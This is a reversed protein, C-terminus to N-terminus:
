DSMLFDRVSQGKPPSKQGNRTNNNGGNSPTASRGPAVPGRKQPERIEINESNARKGVSKLAEARVKNIITPLLQAAKSEYKSQIFDRDAKAYGSRHAKQWAQRMVAQFRTDQSLIQQVQRKAKNVAAERVFESMTENPDLRKALTADIKRDLKNIIEGRTAEFKEALFEQREKNVSEDKPAEDKALKSPPTYQSSGTAYQHLIVAAHKLAENGSARAEEVMGVVLHKAINRTIHIQAGEDVAALDTMLNDVMRYFANQDQSKVSEFVKELQGSMLYQDFNDLSQAKEVVERAEAPTQFLESFQQDRYYATQLYPFKKFLDPYAKLIEARRPAEMLQLKDESPEELEEEIEDELTEETDEGDAENKSDKEPLELVEEDSDDELLNEIKQQSTADDDIPTASGGGETEYLPFKILQSM